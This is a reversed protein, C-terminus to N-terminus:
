PLQRCQDRSGMGDSIHVCSSDACDSDLLCSGGPACAPCGSFRGCDVGNESGDRRGNFCRTQSVPKLRISAHAHKGPYLGYVSESGIAVPVGGRLALVTLEASDGAEASLIIGAAIPLPAAGEARPLLVRRTVYDGTLEFTADIQLADIADADAQGGLHVTICERRPPASTCADVLPRKEPDDATDYPSGCGAAALAVGLVLGRM